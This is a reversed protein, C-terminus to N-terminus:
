AEDEQANAISEAYRDFESSIDAVHRMGSRETLTQQHPKIQAGTEKWTSFQDLGRHRIHHDYGAICVYGVPQGNQDQIAIDAKGYHQGNRMCVCDRLECVKSRYFSRPAEDPERRKRKGAGPLHDAISERSM